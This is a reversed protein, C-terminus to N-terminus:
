SRIAHKRSKGSDTKPIESLFEVFRPIKFAPLNHRCYSLVDQASITEGDKRVVYAKIAEGLIEDEVGIVAAEGVQPIELLIEEIEKASIRHAGSKIMDTRRGVIYLFGEEDSRAFDGTHLGDERLVMETEDRKEWYGLMINEGKAVIEGTEGPGVIRGGEGVLTLTVGPIAKGISGAKRLVAGPELYSLRASAETQGYMIFVDVNPLIEKLERAHRPSMAGGAQTVYRLAPFCRTRLNTKNLLIAYTSPVGSFGTVRESGMMDLVVNPYMMTNELVLTGGAMAHTTLLSNGYSYFFPLVVMVRDDATLRLYQVISRANACLNRHTLMVGKPAGTTGSTYIIMALSDIGSDVGAYPVRREGASSMLEGADIVRVNGPPKARTRAHGADAAGTKTALSLVHRLSPVDPSIDLVKDVDTAKVIVAKPASDGLLIRLGRPPVSANMPVVVGGAKLIAFYSVVYEPSNELLVGVRDGPTVIGDALFAALCDAKSRIEGYSCRRGRHVIFEASPRAEATRDFMRHLNM